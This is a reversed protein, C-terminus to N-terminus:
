VVIVVVALVVVLVYFMKKIIKINLNCDELSISSPLSSTTTTTTSTFNNNNNDFLYEIDENIDEVLVNESTQSYCTHLRM